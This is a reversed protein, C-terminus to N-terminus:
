QANPLDVDEPNLNSFMVAFANFGFGLSPDFHAERLLCRGQDGWSATWSNGTDLVWEGYQKSMVLGDCCLAHGGAIDMPGACLPAVGESTLQGRVFANSVAIGVVLDYGTLLATGAEDFSSVTFAETIRWNLMNKLQTQTLQNQYIVQNPFLAAQGIGYKRAADLADGIQAGQDRGHNIIAYLSFPCLQVDTWGARKRSNYVSRTTAFSACGNTQGQNMIPVGFHRASIAAWNNRPILTNYVGFKPHREVGDPPLCGLGFTENGIQTVPLNSDDAM